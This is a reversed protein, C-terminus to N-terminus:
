QRHETWEADGYLWAIDGASYKSGLGAVYAVHGISISVISKGCNNKQM